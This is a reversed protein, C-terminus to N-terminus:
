NLFLNTSKKNIVIVDRYKKTAFPKRMQKLAIGAKPKLRKGLFDPLSSDGCDPSFLL